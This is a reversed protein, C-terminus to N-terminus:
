VVLQELLKEQSLALRSCRAVTRRTLGAKKPARLVIGIGVNARDDSTPVEGCRGVATVAAVRERTSDAFRHHRFFRLVGGHM